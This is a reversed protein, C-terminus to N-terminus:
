VDVQAAIALADDVTRIFWVNKTRFPPKLGIMKGKNRLPERCAKQAEASNLIWARNGRTSPTILM